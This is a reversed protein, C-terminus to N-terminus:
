DSYDSDAEIQIQYDPYLEQVKERASNLVLRRQPALFDVVLDFHIIKKALDCRFGHIQLVYPQALVAETVKTRMEKAKDDTTNLALVGVATLIVGNKELVHQTIEHSVTDIREASWTDPIEIHVSGMLREPGYSNLVLDYVGSVGPTELITEKVAVSLDSEIREGLIKSVTERFMDIGAKLIALSILLGIWAETQIGFALYLVAALLTSASLVADLLADKGSNCLADSHLRKGRLLLLRGLLIKAAVAASVTIFVGTSYQAEEPSLIMRVSEIMASIGAYLIIASVIMASLYEYRGHGYPHERDAPKGAIKTGVVTVLASLIDTLNNVADLIIAISRSLLGFVMKSAALLVNVLIGLLGMRIIQRERERATTDSM